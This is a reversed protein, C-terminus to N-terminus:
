RESLEIGHEEAYGMLVKRIKRRYTKATRWDKLGLARAIGKNNYGAYVMACIAVDRFAAEKARGRKQIRADIFIEALAKLIGPDLFTDEIPDPNVVAIDGDLTEPLPDAYQPNKGIIQRVYAKITENVAAGFAYRRSSEEDDPFKNATRWLTLAAEQRLDELDMKSVSPHGLKRLAVAVVLGESM